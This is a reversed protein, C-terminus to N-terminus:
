GTSLAWKRTTLLGRQLYELVKWDYNTPKYHYTDIQSSTTHLFDEARSKSCGPSAAVPGAGSCSDSTAANTVVSAITAQTSGGGARVSEEAGSAVSTSSSTAPASHSAVFPGLTTNGAGSIGDPSGVRGGGGALEM